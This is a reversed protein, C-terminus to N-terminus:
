SAPLKGEPFAVDVVPGIVQVVTGINMGTEKSRDVEPQCGRFADPQQAIDKRRAGRGARRRGRPRVARGRATRPGTGPNGDGGEQAGPGAAKSGM